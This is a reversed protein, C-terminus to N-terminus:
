YQLKQCPLSSCLSDILHLQLCESRNCNLCNLCDDSTFGYTCQQLKESGYVYIYVCEGVYLNIAEFQYTRKLLDDVSQVGTPIINHLTSQNLFQLKFIIYTTTKKLCVILSVATVVAVSKDCQIIGVLIIMIYM